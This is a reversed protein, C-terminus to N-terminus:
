NREAARNRVITEIADMEDAVSNAMAIVQELVEETLSYRDEGEWKDHAALERAEATAAVVHAKGDPTANWVTILCVHPEEVSSPYIIIEREGPCSLAGSWIAQTILRHITDADQSIPNPELPDVEEEQRSGEDFRKMSAVLGTTDLQFKGTNNTHKGAM